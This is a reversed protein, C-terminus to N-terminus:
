RDASTVHNWLMIQKLRLYHASVNLMSNRTIKLLIAPFIIVVTNHQIMYWM